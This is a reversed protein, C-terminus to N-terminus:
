NFKQKLEDWGPEVLVSGDPLIIIPVSRSGNNVKMVFEIAEQNGELGIRLYPHQQIRFIEKRTYLQAISPSM